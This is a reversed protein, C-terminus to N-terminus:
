EKKEECEDVPRKRSLKHRNHPEQLLAEFDLGKPIISFKNLDPHSCYYHLKIQKMNVTEKVGRMQYIERVYNLLVPSDAISRTNTKFYVVYVEDFRVLTVFLRIDSLTFRDGAIFRQKSLISEAKDFAETLDEIAKDYACQSRAFGCRYVGNNLKPYIWSDVEEMISQLDKPNLDIDPYKAFDNFESNFMKIIDASENSVITNLKKDWLIPVTYKGDKDGAREYLERVTASHYFPEQQNEPYSAPFPGGLGITNKYPVGDPHAFVWGNHHDDPDHPKTKRWVPMVATM